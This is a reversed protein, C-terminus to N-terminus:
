SIRHTKTREFDKKRERGHFPEVRFTDVQDKSGGPYQRKQFDKWSAANQSTWVGYILAPIRQIHFIFLEVSRYSKSFSLSIQLCESPNLKQEYYFFFLPPIRSSWM